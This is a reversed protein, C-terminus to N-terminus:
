SFEFNESGSLMRAQDFNNHTMKHDNRACKVLLTLIVCELISRDLVSSSYNGVTTRFRSSKTLSWVPDNIAAIAIAFGTTRENM